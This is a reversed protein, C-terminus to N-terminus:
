RWDGSYYFAGWDRYQPFRARVHRQAAEFSALRPWGERLRAYLYTFFAQSAETEVPWLTGILTSVGRLLLNAPIGRPNDSMDFRGLATECASLTVLEVRHLDLALTEYAAIRGDSEDDPAVFLCQFEPATVNHRGHTAIHFLQTNELAAFVAAETAEADLVASVDFTAAVARAEAVAEPIAGLGPRTDSDFGLGVAVLERLPGTGTSSTAPPLLALNPLYTIIWDDALPKGDVHLLHFPLFHLAGHPVVCLHTKGAARYERLFDLAPGLLELAAEELEQGAERTYPRPGPEAVLVSRVHYTHGQAYDLYRMRGNLETAVFRNAPATPQVVVRAVDDAFLFTWVASDGNGDTGSYIYLLVMEPTLLSYLQDAWLLEPLEGELDLLRGRVHADFTHQLNELVDRSGIEPVYELEENYPNALSMEDLLPAEDSPPLDEAQKTAEAILRLLQGGEDDSRWDYSRDARLSAAFLLGKALQLFGLLVNVDGEHHQDLRAMATRYIRQLIRAGGGGLHNEVKVAIPAVAEFLPRALNTTSQAFAGELLTLCELAADREANDIFVACADAHYRIASQLDGRQLARTAADTLRSAYAFRLVAPRETALRNAADIFLELAAEESTASDVQESRTSSVACMARAVDQDPWGAARVFAAVRDALEAHDGDIVHDPLEIRLKSLLQWELRLLRSRQDDSAADMWSRARDYLHLGMDPDVELLLQGLGYLLEAPGGLSTGGAMEDLTRSVLRELDAKSPPEGVQALVMFAQIVVQPDRQEDVVELMQRCLDVLQADEVAQGIVRRGMAASLVGQLVLAAVAQGIVRRGMAASLLGQLVLARLHGRAMPLARRLYDEGTELAQLIGPMKWPPSSLDVAPDTIEERLRDSWRRLSPLFNDPNLPRGAFFPDIHLMGLARLAEVVAEDKGEVAGNEGTRHLEHLLREGVDVASRLLGPDAVQSLAFRAVDLWASATVQFMLTADPGTPLRDVAALAIRQAQVGRRWNEGGVLGISLKGFAILYPVSLSQVVSVQRALDIATDADYYVDIALLLSELPGQPSLEYAGPDDRVQRVVELGSLLRSRRDEPEAAVIDPLLAMALDTILHPHAFVLAPRQAVPVDAILDLVELAAASNQVFAEVLMGETLPGAYRPLVLPTLSKLVDRIEDPDQDFTGSLETFTEAAEDFSGLALLVSVKLRAARVLAARVWPRPDDAFDHLLRDLLRLGEALEPGPEAVRHELILSAHEYLAAAVASRLEVQDDSGFCDVVERYAAESEGARNLRRLTGARIYMAEALLARAEPVHRLLQLCRALEDVGAAPDKEATQIAGELVAGVVYQVAEASDDGRVSATARVVELSLMLLADKQQETAAVDDSGYLVESARDLQGAALLARVKGITEAVLEEAADSM